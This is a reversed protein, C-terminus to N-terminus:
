RLVVSNPPLAVDQRVNLGMVTLGHEPKVPGFRQWLDASLRWESPHRAAAMAEWYLTLM